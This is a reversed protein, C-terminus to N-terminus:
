CFQYIINVLLRSFYVAWSAITTIISPLRSRNLDCFSSWSNCYIKACYIPLSARHTTAIQVLPLDFMLHALITGALGGCIQSLIYGLALPASIERALCLTFTVAPNFHAGSVPDLITILVVLMAGTALTNGILALGDIGDLLQDAMIGSGVITMKLFLTGIAKACLAQKM